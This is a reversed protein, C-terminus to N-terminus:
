SAFTGFVRQPTEDQKIFDEFMIVLGDNNALFSDILKIMFRVKKLYGDFNQIKVSLNMINFDKNKFISFALLIEIPYGFLLLYIFGNAIFNKFLISILLVFNTWIISSSRIILFAELKDNNYTPENYCIFLIIISSLLLIILSLYENSIFLNQLILLLKIIIIVIDNNSNIRVTSIYNQFPFFSFHLM